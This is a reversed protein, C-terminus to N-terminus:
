EAWVGDLKGEENRYSLGRLTGKHAWAGDPTGEWVDNTELDVLRYKEPLHTHLTLVVPEESSRQTRLIAWPSKHIPKRAYRTM